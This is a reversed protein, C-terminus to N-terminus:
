ECKKSKEGIVTASLLGLVVAIILLAAPTGRRRSAAVRRGAATGWSMASM